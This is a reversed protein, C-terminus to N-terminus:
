RTAQVIARPLIRNVEINRKKFINLLDGEIFNELFEGWKNNFNGNAKDISESTKAVTEKLERLSGETKPQSAETKQNIGGGNEPQAAETKKQEEQLMQFGIETKQQSAETKQQAKALDKLIGLIEDITVTAM